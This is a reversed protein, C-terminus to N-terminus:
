DLNGQIVASIIFLVFLISFGILINKLKSKKLPKDYDEIDELNPEM